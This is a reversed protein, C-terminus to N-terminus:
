KCTTRIPVSRRRNRGSKDYEERWTGIGINPRSSCNQVPAYHKRKAWAPVGNADVANSIDAPKVPAAEAAPKPQPEALAPEAQVAALLLVALLSIM